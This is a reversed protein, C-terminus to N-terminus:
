RRRSREREAQARVWENDRGFLQQVPWGNSGAYTTIQARHSIEHETLMLLVRWSSVSRTPDGIQEVRRELDAAPSSLAARLGEMSSELAPVWEDRAPLANPWPEWIWGQGLFASAFYGRAEALHAVLEPIGWASGDDGTAMSPMWREADVPLASVDRVTRRHVGEFWALFAPADAFM